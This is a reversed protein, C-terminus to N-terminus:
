EEDYDGGVMNIFFNQLGIHQIAFNNPIKAPEDFLFATTYNGVTKQALVNLSKIAPEVDSTIGTLSFAKEDIDNITCRFLIDGKDMIILEEACKIMEDVLHTSIIITRPNHAMSENLLAYFKNRMVADLGLVPEDLLIIKRGSALSLLTNFMTQMGFSLQGYRKNSDLHFKKVMDKAFDSDFRDDLSSAMRILKKLKTNFQTAKSEIFSVANPMKATGVPKDAIEIQGTDTNIYGAMLKMLTTKGAGNCGLLCYVKGDDIKATIHNIAMSHGYCKSIDSLNIM